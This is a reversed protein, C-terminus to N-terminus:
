TFRHTCVILVLPQSLHVTLAFINVSACRLLYGGTINGIEVLRKCQRHHCVGTSIYRSTGTSLETTSTSAEIISTNQRSHFAFKAGMCFMIFHITDGMLKFKGTMFVKMLSFTFTYTTVWGPHNVVVQKLQINRICLWEIYFINAQENPQPKDYIITFKWDSCYKKRVCVLWCYKKVFWRRYSGALRVPAQAIVVELFTCAADSLGM